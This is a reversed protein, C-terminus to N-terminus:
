KAGKPAEMGSRWLSVYFFCPPANHAAWFDVYVTYMPWALQWCPYARNRTIAIDFLGLEGGGLTIEGVFFGFGGRKGFLAVGGDTDGFTAADPSGDGTGGAAGDYGFGALPAGRAWTEHLM